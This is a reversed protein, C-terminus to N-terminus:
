SSTGSYQRLAELRERAEEAYSTDTYDRVIEELLAIAEATKNGLALTQARVKLHQAVQERHEKASTIKKETLLGLILYGLVGALGLLGLFPYYGRKKAYIGLGIVLIITGIIFILLALLAHENFTKAIIFGAIQGITGFVVWILSQRDFKINM